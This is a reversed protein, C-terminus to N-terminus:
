LLIWSHAPDAAAWIVQIHSVDRLIITCARQWVSVYSSSNQSPTQLDKTSKHSQQHLNAGDYFLTHSQIYSLLFLCPSSFILIIVTLCARIQSDARDVGVEAAASLLNIPDPM